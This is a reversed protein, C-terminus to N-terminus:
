GNERKKSAKLKWLGRTLWLAILLNFLCATYGAGGDPLDRSLVAAVASVGVALSVALWDSIGKARAVAFLFASAALGAGGAVYSAVMFKGAADPDGKAHSLLTMGAFLWQNFILFCWGLLVGLQWSAPLGETGVPLRRALDCGTSCVSMGKRSASGCIECPAEARM